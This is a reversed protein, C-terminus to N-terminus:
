DTALILRRGDYFGEGDAQVLAGPRDAYFSIVTNAANLANDWDSAPVRVAVVAKVQGLHAIAKKRVRLSAGADKVQERFEQLEARLLCQPSGDDLAVEVEIPATSDPGLLTAERWDPDDLPTANTEDPRLPWGEQESFAVLDALPHREWEALLARLYYAM